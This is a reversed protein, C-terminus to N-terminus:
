LAKVIGYQILDEIYKFVQERCMERSVDYEELLKEAKDANRNDLVLRQRVSLGAKSFYCEFEEAVEDTKDYSDPYSAVILLKAGNKPWVEKLQVAFENSEDQLDMLKSTLICIKTM